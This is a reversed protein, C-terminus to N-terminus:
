YSVKFFVLEGGSKHLTADQFLGTPVVPNVLGFTPNNIVQEVADGDDFTLTEFNTVRHEDSLMQLQNQDLQVKRKKGNSGTVTTEMLEPLGNPFFLHSVGRLDYDDETRSTEIEDRKVILRNLESSELTSDLNYINTADAIIGDLTIIYYDDDDFLFVGKFSFPLVFKLVSDPTLEEVQGREQLGNFLDLLKSVPMSPIINTAGTVSNQHDVRITTALGITDFILGMSPKRVELTYSGVNGIEVLKSM